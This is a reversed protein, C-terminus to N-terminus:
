EDDIDETVIPATPQIIHLTGEPEPTPVPTVDKALDVPDVVVVKGEGIRRIERLMETMAKVPIRDTDVSPAGDPDKGGQEALILKHINEIAKNAPAFQNEAVAKTHIDKYSVNQTRLRAITALVTMDDYSFARVEGKAPNAGASLHGTFETAWKRITRQSVGFRDSAEHVTATDHPKYDEGSDDQRNALIDGLLDPTEKRDSM